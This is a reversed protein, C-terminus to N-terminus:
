VTETVTDRPPLLTDTEIERVPVAGVSVPRVHTDSVSVEFVLVLQATRSSRVGAGAPPVAIAIVVLTGVSSVAGEETVTGAPKLDTLKVTLAPTMLAACLAVTRAWSPCVTTDKGNVRESAGENDRKVQVGVETAGPAEPVHVAVRLEAVPLAEAIPRDDVLAPIIIGVEIMMGAPANLAEKVNVSDGVTVVPHTIIEAVKPVTLLDTTITGVVVDEAAADARRRQAWRCIAAPPVVTQSIRVAGLRVFAVSNM